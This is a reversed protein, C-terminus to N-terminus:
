SKASQRQIVGNDAVIDIAQLFVSTPPIALGAAWAEVEAVSAGLAAALREANGLTEIARRFTRTYATDGTM